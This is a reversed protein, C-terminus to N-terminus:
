ERGPAAELQDVFLANHIVASVPSLHLAIARATNLMMEESLPIARSTLTLVVRETKQGSTRASANPM